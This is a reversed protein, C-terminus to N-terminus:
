QKLNLNYLLQLEEKKIVEGEFSMNLRELLQISRSNSPLTIAKIFDLNTEQQIIKIIETSAEFAFGCGSYDKLFAFGLDYFDFNARKILTVIGIPKNNDKKNIVWYITDPSNLIKHIYHNADDINNINRDGIYRKWEDTNLLEFVFYNHELSFTQILLRETSSTKQTLTEKIM